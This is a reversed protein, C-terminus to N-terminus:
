TSRISVSREIEEQLDPDTEILLELFQKMEAQLDPDEELRSSVSNILFGFAEERSGFEQSRVEAILSELVKSTEPATSAEVQPQDPMIPQKAKPRATTELDSSCV